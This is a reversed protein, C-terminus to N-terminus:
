GNNQPDPTEDSESFEHLMDMLSGSDVHHHLTGDIQINPGASCRGECRSGSLQFREELHHEALYTELIQLNKENGRAFCSSGMCICVTHRTSRTNM